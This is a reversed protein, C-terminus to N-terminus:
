AGKKKARFFGDIEEVSMCNLVDRKTLWAKRALTIGYRMDGFGSLDHADPDVAIRIGRRAARKLAPWDPDLRQPSCNLELVSGSSALANFVRDEDYPFGERSLLLRGSVHGLITFYRNTIATVLRATATERDMVLKSHVSGIVFDLDALVEDPYDLGGDSLIDSEIGCFVRFPALSRNLLKVEAIQERLREVSLGGAYAAARSHDSLCLYKYGRRQCEAALEEITRVGDSARSHVHIM